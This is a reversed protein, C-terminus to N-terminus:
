KSQKIRELSEIVKKKHSQTNSYLVSIKAQSLILVIEQFWFLRESLINELHSIRM